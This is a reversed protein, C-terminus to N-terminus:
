IKNECAGRCNSKGALFVLSSGGGLNRIFEVVHCVLALDGCYSLNAQTWEAMNWSKRKGVGAQPCRGTRQM